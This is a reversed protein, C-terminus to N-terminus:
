RPRCAPHRRRPGRSRPRRRTRAAAPTPSTPPVGPGRSPPYRRGPGDWASPWSSAASCSANTVSGAARPPPRRTLDLRRPLRGRVVRQEDQASLRDPEARVAQVLGPGREGPQRLQADGMLPDLRRGHDDDVTAHPEHIEAHRGDAGVLVLESGVARLQQHRGPAHGPRLGRDPEYWEKKEPVQSGETFDTVLQGDVKVITRKRDLTILMTSRIFNCGDLSCGCPKGSRSKSSRNVVLL